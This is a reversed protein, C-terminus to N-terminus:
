FHSSPREWRPDEVLEMLLKQGETNAVLFFNVLTGDAGPRTQPYIPAVDFKSKLIATALTVDRVLVEVQQIGEGFKRLYRAIAGSATPDRTTLIDLNANDEFHLEFELADQDPPVDALRPSNNAARIREFLAPQVAVGVTVRPKGPNLSASTSQSGSSPKALEHFEPDGLWQHLVSHCLHAGALHLHFAADEITQRDASALASIWDPIPAHAAM